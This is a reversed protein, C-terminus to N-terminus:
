DTEGRTFAPVFDRRLEEDSVGKAHANRGVFGMLTWRGPFNIADWLAIWPRGQDDRVVIPEDTLRM